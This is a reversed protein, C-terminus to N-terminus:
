ASPSLSRAPARLTLVAGVGLLAGVVLLVLRAPTTLGASLPYSLVVASVLLTTVALARRGRYVALVFATGALLGAIALYRVAPVTDYDGWTWPQLAPASGSECIEGEGCNFMAGLFGAGVAIFASWLWYGIALLLSM